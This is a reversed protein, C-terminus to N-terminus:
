AERPKLFLAVARAVMRKSSGGGSADMAGGTPAMTIAESVPVTNQMVGSRYVPIATDSRM